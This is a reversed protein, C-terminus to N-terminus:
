FSFIKGRCKNHEELVGAIILSDESDILGERITKIITKKM